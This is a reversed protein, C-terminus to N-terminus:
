RALANKFPNEAFAAYIYIEGNTNAGGWSDRLKFGNSVYDVFPNGTVEADPNLTSAFDVNAVLRVANTDRGISTAVNLLQSNTTLNYIQLSTKTPSPTVYIDFGYYKGYIINLNQTGTWVAHVNTVTSISNRPLILVATQTHSPGYVGAQAYIPTGLPNTVANFFAGGVSNTVSGLNKKGYNTWLYNTFGKELGLGFTKNIADQFPYQTLFVTQGQPIEPTFKFLWATIQDTYEKPNSGTYGSPFPDRAPWIASEIIPTSWTVTGIFEVLQIDTQTNASNINYRLTELYGEPTDSLPRVGSAEIAIVNYGRSDGITDRKYPQTLGAYNEYWTQGFEIPDAIGYVDTSTSKITSLDYNTGDYYKFLTYRNPFKGYPGGGEYQNLKKMNPNLAYHNNNPDVYTSTSSIPSAWGVGTVKGNQNNPIVTFFRNTPDFPNNNILQDLLGSGVDSVLVDQWSVSGISANGRWFRPYREYIVSNGVGPVVYGDGGYGSSTQAGGLAQFNRAFGSTKYSRTAGAPYFFTGGERTWEATGL